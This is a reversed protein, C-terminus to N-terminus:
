EEAEYSLQLITIGYVRSARLSGQWIITQQAGWWPADVYCYPYATGRVTLTGTAGILAELAAMSPYNWPNGVGDEDPLTGRVRWARPGRGFEKIAAGDVNLREVFERRLPIRGPSESALPFIVSSSAGDARFSIM